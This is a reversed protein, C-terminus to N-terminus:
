AGLLADVRDTAEWPLELEPRGVQGYCALRRFFGGDRRALHRLGFGRVIAGLRFDFTSRVRRAIEDEAIRASGFTEIQVSVPGALGISYSLQVECSKALGAAVVNKAAYRAAYAGVRDIRSPDKGSLAAGSHRAFEGYTDVATKRGTLGTHFAPGGEVFPGDPNVSIRTADDPRIPEDEFAPLIVREILESRLRPPAPARVVHSTVLTLSHVRKPVRDRFEIGVQTKGDPTLYGLAGSRRAEALRRALKHALWVPLPMLCSTQACAFGFLTAQDRAVLQDLDDDAPAAVGEFEQFSAMVACSKANFGDNEYGVGRIVDRAVEAVSVVARSPAKVSLFVIANSVACEAIVHSTPDHSLFRDVIADSIQDCLKDPHGETVSESTFM